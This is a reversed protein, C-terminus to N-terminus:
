TKREVSAETAVIGKDGVIEKTFAYVPYITTAIELKDGDNGADAETNAQGCAALLAAGMLTLLAFTLSKNM